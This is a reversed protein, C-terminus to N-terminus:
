VGETEARRRAYDFWGETIAREVLNVDGRHLEIELLAIAKRFGFKPAEYSVRATKDANLHFPTWSLSVIRNPGDDWVCKEYVYAIM